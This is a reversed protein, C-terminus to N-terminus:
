HAPAKQLRRARWGAALKPQDYHDMLAAFHQRTADIPDMDFARELWCQAADTRSRILDAQALGFLTDVDLALRGGVFSRTLPFLADDGPAPSECWLPTGPSRRHQRVAKAAKLLDNIIPMLESPFLLGVAVKALDDPSILWYPPLAVNELVRVGSGREPALLSRAPWPDHFTFWGPQVLAGGRPHEFSIGNMGRLQITHGISGVCCLVNLGKAVVPGEHACLAGLIWVLTESDMLCKSRIRPTLEERYEESLILTVGAGVHLQQSAWLEELTMGHDFLEPGHRQIHEAFEKELGFLNFSSLRHAPPLRNQHIWVRGAWHALQERMEPSGSTPFRYPPFTAKSEVFKHAFVELFARLDNDISATTTQISSTGGFLLAPARRQLPKLWGFIM